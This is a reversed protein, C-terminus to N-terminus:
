KTICGKGGVWKNGGESSELEHSRIPMKTEDQSPTNSKISKIAATIGKQTKKGDGIKPIEGGKKGDGINIMYPIPKAGFTAKTEKNSEMESDGGGKMSPSSPDEFNQDTRSERFNEFNRAGSFKQCKRERGEEEELEEEGKRKGYMTILTQKAKIHKDKKNTTDQRKRRPIPKHKKVQNEGLQTNEFFQVKEMVGNRATKEDGPKGEQGILKPGSCVLGGRKTPASCVVEGRMEPASCVM